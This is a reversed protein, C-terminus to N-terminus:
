RPLITGQNTLASRCLIKVNQSKQVKLPELSKDIKILEQKPIGYSMLLIYECGVFQRSYLNRNKMPSM